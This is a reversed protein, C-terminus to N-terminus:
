SSTPRYYSATHNSGEPLDNAGHSFIGITTYKLTCISFWEIIKNYEDTMRDKYGLLMASIILSM